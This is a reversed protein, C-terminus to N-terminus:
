TRQPHPHPTEMVPQSLPWGGQEHKEIKIVERIMRDMYTMKTSLITTDQPKMHEAVTSKDQQEVLIQRQHEKIKTKIAHRTQGFYVRSCKYPMIHM